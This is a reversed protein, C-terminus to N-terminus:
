QDKIEGVLFVTVVAVPTPEFAGFGSLSAYADIELKLTSPDMGAEKATDLLMQVSFGTEPMRIKEQM